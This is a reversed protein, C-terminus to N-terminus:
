CWDRKFSTRGLIKEHVLGRYGRYEGPASMSRLM